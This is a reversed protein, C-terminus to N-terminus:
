SSIRKAEQLFADVPDKVPYGQKMRYLLCAIYNTFRLSSDMPEQILGSHLGKMKDRLSHHNASLQLSSLGTNIDLPNCEISQQFDITRRQTSCQSVFADSRYSSKM